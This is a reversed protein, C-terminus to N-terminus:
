IGAAWINGGARVKRGAHLLEAGHAAGAVEEPIETRFGAIELEQRIGPDFNSSLELPIGSVTHMRPALAAEYVTAGLDIIRQAMQAAVSVIKRGGRTGIAIDRDKMRILLPCLNNLPRKLPGPSNSLGSHPDFRCMGHALIIGTGPVALCSGFLGGQSITASVLNGSSDAASVHATGHDSGGCIQSDALRSTWMGVLVKAMTEWFRPDTDAPLTQPELAALADLVSFGGNPPIATYVEAGRYAGSCPETIRAEFNAMDSRTLIGGHALVFDAIATGIEGTYFDRWGADALRELTRVLEPRKWIHEDPTHRDPGDPLLLETTSSYRLIAERKFEVDKAVFAYPIGNEALRRAPEVIESWRLQGWREWMAGVGGLFGPVSVALPGYFNAQDVVSCGYELENVTPRGPGVPVTRFMDSTAAAPAVTNADVSWTRGTRGDLVVAALAYGGLDVAQPELVACALCAAAAADIANGGRELMEAGARAAEVPGAAVAGVEALIELAESRSM